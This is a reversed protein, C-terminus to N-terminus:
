GVKRVYLTEGTRYFREWAETLSENLRNGGDMQRQLDAVTVKRVRTGHEHSVWTTKQIVGNPDAKEIELVTLHADVWAQYNAKQEAKTYSM